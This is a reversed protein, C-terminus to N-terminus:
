KQKIYKLHHKLYIFFNPIIVKQYISGKQYQSTDKKSEVLLKERSTNAQFYYLQVVQRKTLIQIAHMKWGKLKERKSNKFKFDRKIQM